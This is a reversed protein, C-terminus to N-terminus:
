NMRGSQPTNNSETAKSGASDVESDPSFALSEEIKALRQIFLRTFNAEMSAKSKEM